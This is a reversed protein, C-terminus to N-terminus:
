RLWRRQVQLAVGRGLSTNLPSGFWTQDTYSLTEAWEDSTMLSVTLAATAYREVAGAITNSAQVINVPQEVTWTIAGGLRWDKLSYGSGIGINGGFGPEIKGTVM